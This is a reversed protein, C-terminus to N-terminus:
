LTQPVLTNLEHEIMSAAEESSKENIDMPNGIVLKIKSFPKPLSMEDWTKFIWERNAQWSLPVIRAKAIKAAVAIGGKAKYKPGRPGDPTIVPVADNEKLTKVMKRLAEHRLDHPVRILSGQPYRNIMEALIQGDRSNSVVAAYSRNPTVLHLLQPTITLRNHWLMLIFKGGDGGQLHEAGTVEIRCTKLILWIISNALRAALGLVFRNQKM